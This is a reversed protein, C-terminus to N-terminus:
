ECSKPKNLDHYALRYGIIHYGMTHLTYNTHLTDDIANYAIIARKLIMAESPRDVLPFYKLAVLLFAGRQGREKGASLSLM